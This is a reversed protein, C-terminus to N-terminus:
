TSTLDLECQDSNPTSPFNKKGEHMPFEGDIMKRPHNVLVSSYMHIHLFQQAFPISTDKDMADYWHHSQPLSKDIHMFANTAHIFCRGALAATHPSATAKTDQKHPTGCLM